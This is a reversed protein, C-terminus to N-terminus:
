SRARGSEQGIALEALDRAPEAFEFGLETSARDANADFYAPRRFCASSSHRSCALLSLV